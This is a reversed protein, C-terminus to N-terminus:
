EVVHASAAQLVSKDGVSDKAIMVVVEMQDPDWLGDVVPFVSNYKKKYIEGKKLDSGFVDGDFDTLMDMMVHNHVYNPIIEGGDAQADVIGSEILYVSIKYNDPLDVLPIAAIEVQLQRSTRDFQTELVINLVHPKQLEAEVKGLWRDPIIDVIDGNSDASRNVSAAPKGWLNPFSLELDHADPNRFDYKSADKVPQSLLVGHIGVVVVRGPYQSLINEVALAGKPCNTCSVGTLEEILVTRDSDPIEPDALKIPIENCGLFLGIFIIWSFIKLFKM